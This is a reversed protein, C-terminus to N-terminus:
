PAHANVGRVWLLWDELFAEDGGEPLAVKWGTMGDIAAIVERTMRAVELPPITGDRIQMLQAKEDGEKWVLPEGGDAIRKADLSLRYMHYAWKEGVKGGKSHVSMGAELRKIQGQAYGLYQKVARQCLFKKRNEKLSTWKEHAWCMRDTFLMEVIGPNGKLLLDCFKGVEHVQYDPKEGTITDAPKKLGLISNNEAVYVGLYDVDSEPLQTDHSHSGWVKSFLLHGLVRGKALVNEVYWATPDLRPDQIHVNM